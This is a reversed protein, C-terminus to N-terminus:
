GISSLKLLRKLDELMGKPKADAAYSMMLNGLPDVLYTRGAGTAGAGGPLQAVLPDAAGDLRVVILDPHLSRLADDAAIGTLFVRQVRNMDRDLATRVQRMDYLHARCAAACPGAEVYLLTWKGELFKPDTSSSGDRALALRPLPRVPQILDGQNVRGGPRWTGYGYYLYFAVGLPAFFLLALGLLQRRRRRDRLEAESRGARDTM